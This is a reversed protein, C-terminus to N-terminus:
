ASPRVAGAYGGWWMPSLKVVDNSQPAHLVTGDGLYIGVHHITTPNSPVTAWFVLDGARLSGSGVKPLAAYQARSNRPISIGAQAYAYQTLGSCDFGWVGEDPGWGWGPGNSGGGGWAYDLGLYQRAHAIAKQAASASGPGAPKPNGVSPPNSPPNSPAPAPVPAPAPTAQAREEALRQAAQQAGILGALQEEAAALEGELEQTRVELDAAQARASRESEAARSLATSAQQKLADAQALTTRAKSEARTAAEQLVTVEDLVDSRHSGAAELLAAREIFEAPSGASILAAAGAYTSGDIYSSRAFDVVDGRAVGLALDARESAEVAETAREQAAAFEAQTAQYEDLAIASAARAADVQGRAAALQGSLAGMRAAIEGAQERAAAIAADGPAAAATGPTVGALVAFSLVAGVATGVGRLARRRGGDATTRTSRTGSAV